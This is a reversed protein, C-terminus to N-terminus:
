VSTNDMMHKLDAAQRLCEMLSIGTFEIISYKTYDGFVSIGFAPQATDLPHLKITIWSRYSCLLELIIRTANANPMREAMQRADKEWTRPLMPTGDNPCPAPTQQNVGVQGTSALFVSSVLQFNCQPCEWNGPVYVMKSLRSIEELAESLAPNNLSETRLEDFRQPTMTKGTLDAVM